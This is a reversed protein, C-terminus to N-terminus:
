ITWRDDSDLSPFLITLVLGVEFVRFLFKYPYAVSCTRFTHVCVLTVTDCGWSNNGDKTSLKNSIDSRSTLLCNMKVAHLSTLSCNHLYLLLCFSILIYGRAHIERQGHPLKPLRIYITTKKIFGFKSGCLVDYFLVENNFHMHWIISGAAHLTNSFQVLMRM